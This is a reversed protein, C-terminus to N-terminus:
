KQIMTLEKVNFSKLDNLHYDVDEQFLERTIGGVLRAMGFKLASIGASAALSPISAYTYSFINKLYPAINPEKETFQFSSSMYPFSSLMANEEEKDPQYRDAWLAIMDSFRQCEPRLGLDVKFGTGVILFDFETRGQPTQLWLTNKFLGDHGANEIPSGLHMSFNNYRAVRLYTDQPPPQNIAFLYRMFRWKNKDDLDGFHRLFGSYEMWRYPNVTPLTKRRVFLDVSTAGHELAEAANDFASAGAGIVAVRKGTLCTFDIADATHAYLGKSINKRILDPIIWQGSGGAQNTKRTYVALLGGELPQIDHAETNNQVHIGVVNRLWVLYEAWRDTPIRDMTRWSEVGYKAEWWAKVSLSPIGVDPGTVHKPTRLTHMRAFARWPGERGQPNRDIIIVNNVCEGRLNLALAVGSQGGGVIVVNSVIKGNYHRKPIWNRSPYALCSLDYAIGTLPKSNDFKLYTWLFLTL